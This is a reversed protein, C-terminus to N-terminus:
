PQEESLTVGLAKCLRRVHGRTSQKGPICVYVEDDTRPNQVYGISGDSLVELIGGGSELGLWVDSWRTVVESFGVSRLWAEDVAIADDAPHEAAVAQAFEYAWAAAVCGDAVALRQLDVLMQTIGDAREEVAMHRTSYTPTQALREAAARLDDSM